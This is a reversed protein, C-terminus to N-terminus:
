NNITYTSPLPARWQRLEKPTLAHVLTVHANKYGSLCAAKTSLFGNINKVRLRAAPSDDRAL